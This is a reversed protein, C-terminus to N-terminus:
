RLIEEIKRSLDSPVINTKLFCDSVGYQRLEDLVENTVSASIVIIPTNKTKESERLKKIIEEGTMAPMLMDTIILDYENKLAQKLGWSGNKAYDVTFGSDELKKGFMELFVEEDEILLIRKGNKVMEEGTRSANKRQESFLSLLRKVEVILESPTYQSKGIFGDAGNELMETQVEMQSLNSFVVVKLNPDYEPNSRLEKLVELGGIEPLVMDLLVLDYHTGKAMQLVEKGTKANDVEFGADKFKREYIEEVM